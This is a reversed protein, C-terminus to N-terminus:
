DIKWYLFYKENNMQQIVSDLSKIDKKIIDNQYSLQEKVSSRWLDNRKKLLHKLFKDNQIYKRNEIWFEKSDIDVWPLDEVWKSEIRNIFQNIYKEENKETKKSLYQIDSGEYLEFIRNSIEPNILFFDQTGKSFIKFEGSPPNYPKTNSFLSFPAFYVKGGPANENKWSDIFISDNDTDWRDYQKEYIPLIFDTQSVYLETYDSVLYLESLIKKSIDLYKQRNEYESGVSEVYFTFTVVIFLAIANLLFKNTNNSFTKGGFNKLLTFLNVFWNKQNKNSM